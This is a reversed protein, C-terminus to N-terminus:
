DGTYSWLPDMPEVFDRLMGQLEDRRTQDCDFSSLMRGVRSGTSDARHPSSDFQSHCHQDIVVKLQWPEQVMQLAEQWSLGKISNTFTAESHFARHNERLKDRQELFRVRWQETEDSVPKCFRDFANQAKVVLDQWVRDLGEVPAETHKNAGYSLSSRSAVLQIKLMDDKAPDRDLISFELLVIGSTSGEPRGENDFLTRRTYVVGRGSRAAYLRTSHNLTIGGTLEASDHRGWVTVCDRTGDALRYWWKPHKNTHRQWSSYQRHGEVMLAVNYAGEPKPTEHNWLRAWSPKGRQLRPDGTLITQVELGDHTNHPLYSCRGSFLPEFNLRGLQPGDTETDIPLRTTEALLQEATAFGLCPVLFSGRDQASGIAVLNSTLSATM